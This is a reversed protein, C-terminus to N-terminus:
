ESPVYREYTYTVKKTEGPELKISWRVTGRRELLRLKDTDVSLVGKDSAETPKGNIPLSVIVTAARKEFNKLSLEGKITVLDLFVKESPQQAKFKRDAESESRDTAINVATTVPLECFGGKPTYKLMDESLPSDKDMALVPGTTWATDTSNGMVLSHEIQGPPSWRYVHSYKIKHTFLTVIAKEGRRLTLDKKTYVTYDMAASSDIAPINLGRAADGPNAPVPMDAVDGVQPARRDNNTFIAASNTMQGRMGEPLVTSGIARIVQGAALPALFDSHAFHPVGVVLHTDCHILDEADNVVTGRLTLEAEDEGTIKLTYEPIWTIGKRLYAMSLAAKDAPKGDATVHVRVPLDLIQMKFLTDLPVALSNQDTELVAFKPGVSRLKGAATRDAKAQKYFLQVNLNMSAELRATKAQLDKAADAGDFEVVEGPGSGVVDVLQNKGQAFIALTGFAAPPVEKSLCWGDRLKGDGDRVFFGMGNKFVAVSRVKPKWLQPNSDADEEAPKTAPPKPPFAVSSKDTNDESLIILSPRYRSDGPKDQAACYASVLLLGSAVCVVKGVINM